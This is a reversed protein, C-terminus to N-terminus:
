AKVEVAEMWAVAVAAVQILEVMLHERRRLANSSRELEDIAKAVEGLEEIIVRLKRSEDVIASSCDFHIEGKRLLEKQREREDEIRGVADKAGLREAVGGAFAAVGQLPTAITLKKEKPLGANHNVLNACFGIGQALQALAIDLDGCTYGVFWNRHDRVAKIIGQRTTTKV